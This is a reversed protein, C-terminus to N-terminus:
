RLKLDVGIYFCLKKQSLHETKKYKFVLSAM